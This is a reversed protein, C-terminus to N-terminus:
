KDRPGTGMGIFVWPTLHNNYSEQQFALHNVLLHDAKRLYFNKSLYHLGAEESDSNGM